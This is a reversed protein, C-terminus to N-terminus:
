IQSILYDFLLSHNEFIKYAHSLNQKTNSTLIALTKIGASNGSTVGSPADEIVYCDKKDFGSIELAKLYPEPHPKTNNFDEASLITDFINPFFKSCHALAFKKKTSTVLILMIEKEKLEKLKDYVDYPKIENIYRQFLTQKLEHISQKVGTSIEQNNEKTIITITEEFSVGGLQMLREKTTKLGQSSLSQKWSKVHVEMSNILTGDLDFFLAKM